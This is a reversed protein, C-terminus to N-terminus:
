PAPTCHRLSRTSIGRPTFSITDRSTVRCTGRAYPRQLEPLRRTSSSRSSMRFTKWGVCSPIGITSVLVHKQSDLVEIVTDSGQRLPRCSDRRIYYTGPQLVRGPFEVSQCIKFRMQHAAGDQAMAAPSTCALVVLVMFGAVFFTRQLGKHLVGKANM